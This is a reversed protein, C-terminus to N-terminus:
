PKGNFVKHLFSEDVNQGIGIDNHMAVFIDVLRENILAASNGQDKQSVYGYFKKIADVVPKSDNFVVIAGNMASTFEHSTVDYRYSILQILLKYKRDKDQYERDQKIKDKQFQQNEKNLKFSFILSIIVGILGLGGGIIGSWM